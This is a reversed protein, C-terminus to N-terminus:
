RRWLLLTWHKSPAGRFYIRCEILCPLMAFNFHICMLMSPVIYKTIAHPLRRQNAVRGIPARKQIQELISRNELRFVRDLKTFLVEREETRVTKGPKRRSCVTSITRNNLLYSTMACVSEQELLGLPSSLPIRM